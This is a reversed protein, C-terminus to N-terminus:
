YLKTCCNFNMYVNSGLEINYGYDCYFPPEIWLDEGAKGILSYFLDNREKKQDDNLLNIKQFLLRAKHREAALEPDKANYLQGSLMKEKETM